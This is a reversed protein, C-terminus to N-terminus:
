KHFGQGRTPGGLGLFCAGTCVLVCICCFYSKARPHALSGLWCRIQSRLVDRSRGLLTGFGRWFSSFHSRGRVAQGHGRFTKHGRFSKQDKAGLLMGLAAGSHGCLAWFDSCPGECAGRARFFVSGHLRSRLNLLLRVESKSPSEFGDLVRTPGGLGSFCAGTCVLFCIRSFDSKARPHALSGMWCRVQSALLVGLADWSRGSARGLVPFTVTAM